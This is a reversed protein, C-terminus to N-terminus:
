NRLAEWIKDWDGKHAEKEFLVTDPEEGHYVTIHSDELTVIISAMGEEREPVEPTSGCPMGGGSECDYCANGNADRNTCTDM